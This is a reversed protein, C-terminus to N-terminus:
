GKALTDGAGAGGEEAGVAGDGAEGLLVSQASLGDGPLGLGDAGVEVALGMTLFDEGQTLL